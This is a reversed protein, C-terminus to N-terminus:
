CLSGLGARKKKSSTELRLNESNNRSPLSGCRWSSWSASPCNWDATNRILVLAWMSRLTKYPSESWHHHTDHSSARVSQSAILCGSWGHLTLLDQYLVRQWGWCGREIKKIQKQKQVFRGEYRIAGSKKSQGPKLQLCCSARHLHFATQRSTRTSAINTGFCWQAASIFDVRHDISRAQPKISATKLFENTQPM